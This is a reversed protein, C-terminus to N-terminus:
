NYTQEFATLIIDEESSLIDAESVQSEFIANENFAALAFANVADDINGTAEPLTTNTQMAVQTNPNKHLTIFGIGFVLVLAVPIAFAYRRPTPAFLTEFRSSLIRPFSGITSFIEGMTMYPSEITGLVYKLSAESPTVRAKARTLEGLVKEFAEMENKEFSDLEALFEDLTEDERAQLFMEIRNELIQKKM